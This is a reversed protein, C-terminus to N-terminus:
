AADGRGEDAPEALVGAKSRKARDDPVHRELILCVYDSITLDRRNSQIIVREWLDYPAYVTRGKIKKAKIELQRETIKQAKRTGGTEPQAEAPADPEESDVRDRQRKKELVGELHGGAGRKAEAM